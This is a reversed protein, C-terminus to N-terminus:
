KIQMSTVLMPQRILQLKQQGAVVQEPLQGARAHGFMCGANAIYLDRSYESLVLM